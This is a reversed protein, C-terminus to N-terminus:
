HIYSLLLLILQEFNALIVCFLLLSERLGFEGSEFLRRGNAFGPM